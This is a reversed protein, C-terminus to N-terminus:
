INARPEQTGKVVLRALKSFRKGGESVARCAYLGEDGPQLNTLNFVAGSTGNVTESRNLRGDKFRRTYHQRNVADYNSSLKRNIPLLYRTMNTYRARAYARVCGGAQVFVRTSAHRYHTTHTHPTRTHTRAHTRAHTREHNLETIHTAYM